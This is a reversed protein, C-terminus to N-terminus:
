KSPKDSTLARNSDESQPISAQNTQRHELRKAQVIVLVGTILLGAGILRLPSAETRPNGLLGFHDLLLAAVTQGTMVAAFWPLSGVRPVLILSSTVLVVGIAGGCWIWWPFERPPSTFIPPFSGTSVTLVLLILTGSAFSILSAQLPHELNKGLQGNVSPQTGLLCGAILGILVALMVFGFGQVQKL